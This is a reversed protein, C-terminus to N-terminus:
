SWDEDCNKKVTNRKTYGTNVRVKLKALFIKSFSIINLQCNM